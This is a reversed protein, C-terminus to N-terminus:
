GYGQGDNAVCPCKLQSAIPKVSSSAGCVAACPACQMKIGAAVGLFIALITRMKLYVLTFNINAGKFKNDIMETALKLM